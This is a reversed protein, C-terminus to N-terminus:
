PKKPNTTYIGRCVESCWDQSLRAETAEKILEESSVVQKYAIYVFYPPFCSADGNLLVCVGDSSLLANGFKKLEKPLQNWKAPKIQVWGKRDTPNETKFLNKLPKQM